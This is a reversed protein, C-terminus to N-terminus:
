FILTLMEIILLILYTKLLNSKKVFWKLISNIQTKTKKLVLVGAVMALRLDPGAAKGIKM